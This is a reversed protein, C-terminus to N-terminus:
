FSGCKTGNTQVTHPMGIVMRSLFSQARIAHPPIIVTKQTVPYLIFQGGKPSNATQWGVAMHGGAGAPWAIAEMIKGRHGLAVGLEQLDEERM